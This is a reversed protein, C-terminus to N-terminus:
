ERYLDAEPAPAPSSESGERALRQRASFIGGRAPSLPAFKMLGIPTPMDDYIAEIGGRISYTEHWFGTGGSERLFDKWWQRHPASRTWRELSEFDRWYQRLGLHPPFLSFLLDEHLLLGDPKDAVSKAIQPGLGLAKKIGAVANVRLGLYVVILDPYASLDVTRRDVRAM